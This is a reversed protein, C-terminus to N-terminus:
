SGAVLLFFIVFARVLANELRFHGSGATKPTLFSLVTFNKRSLRSPLPYEGRKM